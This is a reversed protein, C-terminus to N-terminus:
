LAIPSDMSKFSKVFYDGQSSSQDDLVVLDDHRILRDPLGVNAVCCLNSSHTSQQPRVGGGFLM